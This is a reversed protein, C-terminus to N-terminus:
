MTEDIRITKPKRQVEREIDDMIETKPKLQREKEKELGNKRGKVEATPRERQKTM